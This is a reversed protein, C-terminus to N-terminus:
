LATDAKITHFHPHMEVLCEFDSSMVLVRQFATLHEFPEAEHERLLREHFPIDWDNFSMKGIDFYVALVTAPAYAKRAKKAIMKRLGDFPRDLPDPPTFAYPKERAADERHFKQREYDERLVEVVEVPSWVKGEATFTIFDPEEQERAHVPFGEGGAALLKQLAGLVQWERTKKHMRSFFAVAGLDFKTSEIEYYRAAIALMGHSAEEIFDGSM